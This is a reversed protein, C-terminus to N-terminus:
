QNIQPHTWGTKPLLALLDDAFPPEHNGTIVSYYGELEGAADYVLRVVDYSRADDGEWPRHLVFVQNQNPQKTEVM